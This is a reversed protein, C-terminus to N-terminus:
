WIPTHTHAHTYVEENDVMRHDDDDHSGKLCFAMRTHTHTRELNGFFTFFFSIKEFQYEYNDMRFSFDKMYISEFPCRQFANPNSLTELHIGLLLICKANIKTHCLCLLYFFSFKSIAKSTFKTSGYLEDEENDAVKFENRKGIGVSHENSLLWSQMNM